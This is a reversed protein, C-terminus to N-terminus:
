KLRLVRPDACHPPRATVPKILYQATPDSMYLKDTKGVRSVNESNRPWMQIESVSCDGSRLTDLSIYMWRLVIDYSHVLDYPEKLIGTTTGIRDYTVSKITYSITPQSSLIATETAATNLTSRM